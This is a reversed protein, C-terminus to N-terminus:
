DSGPLAQERIEEYIAKIGARGQRARIRDPELSRKKVRRLFRRFDSASIEDPPKTINRLLDQLLRLFARIVRAKYVVSDTTGWDDGDYNRLGIFFQLVVSYQSNFSADHLVSRRTSILSKLDPALSGQKLTIEPQEGTLDIRQFLPSERDGELQLVLEAAGIAHPDDEPQVLRVLDWRLSSPVRKQNDNIELFLTAMDVESLGMHIM